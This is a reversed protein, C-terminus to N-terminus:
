GWIPTRRPMSRTWHSPKRLCSGRRPIPRKRLAGFYEVGRLLADYAELNDTRKRVIFRQEQLTLQLKLTTVIKQVIDDQLAFIDNLSRNYRESWIHSGTTTDILQAVIRVQESARQV